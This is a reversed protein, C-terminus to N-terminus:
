CQFSFVNPSFDSVLSTSKMPERSTREIAEEKQQESANLLVSPEQTPEILQGSLSSKLKQNEKELKIKALQAELM